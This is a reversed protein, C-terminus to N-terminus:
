KANDQTAPYYDEIMMKLYTMAKELDQRGNKRKHRCVYKIVNASMFCLHERNARIFDLPQIPMDYHTPNNIPDNDKQPPLGCVSCKKRLKDFGTDACESCYPRM